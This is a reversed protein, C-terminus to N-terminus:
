LERGINETCDEAFSSSHNKKFKLSRTDENKTEDEKQKGM